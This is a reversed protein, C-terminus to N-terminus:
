AVHDAFPVPEPAAVAPVTLPTVATAAAFTEVVPPVNNNGPLETGATILMAFPFPTGIVTDASVM